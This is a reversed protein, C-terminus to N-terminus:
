SIYKKKIRFAGASIASFLLGIIILSIPWGVSDVFHKNTFYGIYGLMSFVGIVLISTSKIVISFYLILCTIAIYVVEFPSDKLIAFWGWLFCLSGIINSLFILNHYLNFRLGYVSLLLSGGIIAIGWDYYGMRYFINLVGGYFLYLGLMYTMQVIRKYKIEHMGYTVLLISLGIFTLNWEEPVRLMDFAIALFSAAFWLSTLLLIPIRLSIFSLVQQTFMIGFVILSALRWNNTQYNFYEHILVFLGGTEFLAAVLMIPAVFGRKSEDRSFVVGIIYAVFGSGLTSIVRAASNMDIWFMSVYIGIGSFIFIGGIISFILMATNMGDKKEQEPIIAKKLEDITISHEKVLNKIQLLAEKKDTM